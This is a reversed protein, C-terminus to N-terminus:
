EEGNKKNRKPKHYIMKVEQVHEGGGAIEFSAEAFKPPGFTGLANNSFAFPEAPIGFKKTDLKENENLDQFLAFAYTGDTLNRFEIDMEHAKVEKRSLLENELKSNDFAEPNSTLRLMVEGEILELNTIHIRLQNQNFGYSSLIMFLLLFTYKKAKM